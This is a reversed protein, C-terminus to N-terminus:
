KCGKCCHLWHGVLHLSHSAPCTLWLSYVTLLFDCWSPAPQSSATELTLRGARCTTLPFGAHECSRKQPPSYIELIRSWIMERPIPRGTIRCSLWSLYFWMLSRRMRLTIQPCSCLGRQGWVQLDAAGSGEQKLTEWPSHPVPGARSTYKQSLQCTNFFYM